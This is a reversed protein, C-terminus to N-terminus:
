ERRPRGQDSRRVDDPVVWDRTDLDSECGQTMMPALWDFDPGIPGRQEM